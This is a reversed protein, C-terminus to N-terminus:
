PRPGAGRRSLVIVRTDVNLIQGGAHEALPSPWHVHGCVTLPVEHREVLQRIAPNGPQDSDGNPGEHLLLLDVDSEAVVEIHALQDDLDRRGVKMPNGTILGVGGIRRGDCEVTEGDLVHAAGGTEVRSVDDHNGAVGVVWAFRDAFAQWVAAVDGHGGRRNAEPVSYLDGALLVGTRQAVPLLGDFALEDLVDAVAVGLLTAAGGRSPSPVIGQLDSTAILGDLQDPLGDVWAREIRLRCVETGGRRAANLYHVESVPGVDIAEIRIPPRQHRHRASV